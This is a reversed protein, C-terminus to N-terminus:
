TSNVVLLRRVRQVCKGDCLGICVTSASETERVCVCVSRCGDQCFKLRQTRASREGQIGKCRWGFSREMKMDHGNATASANVGLSKCNYSCVM